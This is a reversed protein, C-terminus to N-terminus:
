GHTIRKALKVLDKLTPTGNIARLAYFLDMVDQSADISAQEYGDNFAKVISDELLKNFPNSSTLNAVHCVYNNYRLEKKTMKALNGCKNCITNEEAYYNCNKHLIAKM